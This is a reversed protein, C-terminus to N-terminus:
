QFNIKVTVRLINRWQCSEKVAGHKQLNLTMNKYCYLANDGSGLACVVKINGQKASVRFINLTVELGFVCKEGAEM